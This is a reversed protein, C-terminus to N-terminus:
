VANLALEEKEYKRGATTTVHASFFPPHLSFMM